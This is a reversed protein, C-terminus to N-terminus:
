YHVLLLGDVEADGDVVDDLADGVEVTMREVGTVRALSKGAPVYEMYVNRSVTAVFQLELSAAQVHLGFM